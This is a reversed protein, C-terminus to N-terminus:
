SLVDSFIYKKVFFGIQEDTFHKLYKNKKRENLFFVVQKKLLYPKMVQKVALYERKLLTGQRHLIEIENYLFELDVKKNEILAKLISFRRKLVLATLPCLHMFMTNKKYLNAKKDLLKMVLDQKGLYCAIFLPTRGSNDVCDIDMQQSLMYYLFKDYFSYKHGRFFNQSARILSCAEKKKIKSYNLYVNSKKEPQVLNQIIDFNKKTKSSNQNNGTKNNITSENKGGSNRELHESINDDREGSHNPTTEEKLLQLDWNTYEEELEYFLYGILFHFYNSIMNFDTRGSINGSRRLRRLNVLNTEKRVRKNRKKIEKDFLMKFGIIDNKVMNQNLKIMHQAKVKSNLWWSLVIILLTTVIPFIIIMAHM